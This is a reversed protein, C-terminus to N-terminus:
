ENDDDFEQIIDILFKRYLNQKEARESFSEKCEDYTKFGNLDIESVGYLDKDQLYIKKEEKKRKIGDYNLYVKLFDIFKLNFLANMEKIDKNKESCLLKNIENIKHKLMEKKKKLKDEEKEIEKLKGCGIFYRPAMYDYYIDYIGFDLLEKIKEKIKKKEDGEKKKPNIINKISLEYLSLHTKNKIFKHINKTCSKLIKTIANIMEERDHTKSTRFRANKKKRGLPNKGGEKKENSKKGKIKIKNKKEKSINIVENITEKKEFLDNISSYSYNKQNNKLRQLIKQLDSTSINSSRLFYYSKSNLSLSSHHSNNCYQSKKYENSISKSRNCYQSKNFENAFSNNSNSNNSFQSRNHGNMLSNNIFSSPEYVQYEKNYETLNIFSDSKKSRM